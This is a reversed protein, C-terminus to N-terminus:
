KNLVIVSEAQMTYGSQVDGKGDDLQVQATKSGVILNGTISVPIFSDGQAIGKRYEVFILQNPPPPPVHVCSGITPVLLFETVKRNKFGIPLLYGTMKIRVGDLKRIYTNGKKEEFNLIESALAAMDSYDARLLYLDPAALNSSKQRNNLLSKKLGAQRYADRLRLKDPDNLAKIKTELEPSSPMLDRWSIILENNQKVAFVPTSSLAFILIYRLSISYRIM